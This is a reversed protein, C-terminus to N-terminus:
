EVKVKEESRKKLEQEIVNLNHQASNLLKVQEYALAKIEVDTMKEIDM